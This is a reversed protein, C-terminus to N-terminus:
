TIHEAVSFIKFHVLCYIFEPKEPQIEWNQSHISGESLSKLAAKNVQTLRKHSPSISWTINGVHGYLCSNLFLRIHCKHKSKKDRLYKACKHEGENLSKFTKDRCFTMTKLACSHVEGQTKQKSLIRQGCLVTKKNQLCSSITKLIYWFFSFLSVFVFVDM